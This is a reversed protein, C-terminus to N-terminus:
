PKAEAAPHGQPRRRLGRAALGVLGEPAAILLLIVAIRSTLTKM